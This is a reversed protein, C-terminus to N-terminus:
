YPRCHLALNRAAETRWRLLQVRLDNFLEVKFRIDSKPLRRGFDFM